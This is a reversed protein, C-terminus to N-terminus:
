FELRAFKKAGMSTGIITYAITVLIPGAFALWVGQEGMEVFATYGNPFLMGVWGGLVGTVLMTITLLLATLMTSATPVFLSVLTLVTLAFCMKMVIALLSALSFLTQELSQDFFLNAGISMHAVRGYYIALAILAFLLFYLAVIALLSLYKAVFVRERKIDKYLFLTHQDVEKRFVTITLYSMALTPLIFGDVSLLMMGLFSLYSLEHGPEVSIQMFNSEGFFSGILYLTPYLAFLLLIKTERLKWVSQFVAGLM